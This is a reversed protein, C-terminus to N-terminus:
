EQMVISQPVFMFPQEIHTTRGYRDEAELTAVTYGNELILAEEFYGREDTYIPRGNLSARVINFMQGELMVVREHQINAPESSLVIQPGLVLFRAQYLVYTALVLLLLGLIFFFLITRLPFTSTTEGLRM